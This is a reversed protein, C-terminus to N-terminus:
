ALAWARRSSWRGAQMRQAVHFQGRLEQPLHRRLELGPPHLRWPVLGEGTHVERLGCILLPDPGRRGAKRSQQIVGGTYTHPPRQAGSGAWEEGRRLLGRQGWDVQAGDGGGQGQRSEAVDLSARHGFGAGRSLGVHGLLLSKLCGLIRSIKSVSRQSGAEIM